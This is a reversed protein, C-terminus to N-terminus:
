RSERGALRERAQRYRVICGLLRGEADHYRWGATFTFGAPAFRNIMGNTLEPANAPVPLVPFWTEEAHPQAEARGADM